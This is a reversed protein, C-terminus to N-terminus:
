LNLCWLELSVLWTGKFGNEVEKMTVQLISQILEQYLANLVTGPKYDPSQSHRINKTSYKQIAFIKSNM